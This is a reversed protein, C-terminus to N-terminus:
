LIYKIMEEARCLCPSPTCRICEYDKYYWFQNHTEVSEFNMSRLYGKSSNQPSEVWSHCLVARAGMKKLIEISRNSLERGIGKKQYERAVFLSKFYAVQNIPVRWKSPRIFPSYTVDQHWEEPAMTLRIGIIKNDENVAVLSANLNEVQGRLLIQRLESKKFYNKGIWKDSFDLIPNVDRLEINRIRFEM